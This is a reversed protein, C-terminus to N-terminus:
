AELPILQQQTFRETVATKYEAAIEFGLGKRGWKEAALITTGTGAYPDLVTDGYFSYLRIVREALEIPFTAPHHSNRNTKIEWIGRTWERWEEITLKSKEKIDKPMKRHGDKNFVLINEFMSTLICPTPPHPYSGFLFRKTSGRNASMSKNWIIESYFTYGITSLIRETDHTIPYLFIKKEINKRSGINKVNVVVRGGPMIKKYLEANLIELDHLYQEYTDTKKGIGKGGAYEIFNYYPPSYFALTISQDPLSPVGQESDM